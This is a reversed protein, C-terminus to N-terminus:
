AGAAAKALCDASCINRTAARSMPQPPLSASSMRRRQQRHSRWRRQPKEPGCRCDLTAVREADQAAALEAAAQSVTRQTAALEAGGIASEIEALQGQQTSVAAKAANVQAQSPVVPTPDRRGRVDRNNGLLAIAGTPGTAGSPCRRIPAHVYLCPVEM